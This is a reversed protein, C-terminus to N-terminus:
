FIINLLGSIFALLSVITIVLLSKRTSNLKQELENIRQQQIKDISDNNKIKDNVYKNVAKQNDIAKDHEKDKADHEYDKM